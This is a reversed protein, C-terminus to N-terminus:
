RDALPKLTVLGSRTVEPTWGASRQFLTKLGVDFHATEGKHKFAASKVFLEGLSKDEKKENAGEDGAGSEAGGKYDKVQEAARAVTKLKEAEVKLTTIEESKTRIWDVADANGLSKVKTMDMEPGAETFVNHLSKRAADLQGLKEKLAPFKFEETM